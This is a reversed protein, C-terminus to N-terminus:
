QTKEEDLTVALVANGNGDGTFMLKEDVAGKRYVIRTEVDDGGEIIEAPEKLEGLAPPEGDFKVLQFRKVKAQFSAKEQRPQGGLQKVLWDALKSAM